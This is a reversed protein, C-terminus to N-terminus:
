SRNAGPNSGGVQASAQQVQCPMWTAFAQEGGAELKDATSDSPVLYVHKAAFHQGDADFGGLNVCTDDHVCSVLAPLPRGEVVAGRFGREPYFWVVRGVTPVIASM